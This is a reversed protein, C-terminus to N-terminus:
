GKENFVQEHVQKYGDKLINVIQAHQLQIEDPTGIIEGTIDNIIPEDKKHDTHLVRKLLEGIEERLLNAKQKIRGKNIEPAAWGARDMDSSSLPSGFLELM